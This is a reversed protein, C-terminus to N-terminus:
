VENRVEQLRYELESRKALLKSHEAEVEQEAHHIKNHEAQIVEEKVHLEDEKAEVEDIEAKLKAALKSIPNSSNTNPNM